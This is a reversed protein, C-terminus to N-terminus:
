SFSNIALDHIECIQSIRIRPDNLAITLLSSFQNVLRLVMSENYFDCHFSWTFLMSDQLEEINFVLPCDVRVRSFKNLNSTEISKSSMQSNIFNFFLFSKIVVDTKNLSDCNFVVKKTSNLFISYIYPLLEEFKWSPNISTLLYLTGILNGVLRRNKPSQRNSFLSRIICDVQGTLSFHLLILGALVISSISLRRSNRLELITAYLVSDCLLTIAKGRPNRILSIEKYRFRNIEGDLKKLVEPYHAFNAYLKSYNMKWNGKRLLIGWHKEINKVKELEINQRETYECLQPCYWTDDVPEVNKSYCKYFNNVDEKILNISWHDVIIHHFFLIFTVIPVDQPLVVVAQILPGANLSKLKRQIENTVKNISNIKETIVLSRYEIKFREKSYPHVTQYLTGNVMCFTTRLASHKCILKAYALELAEFNLKSGSFQLIILNPVDSQTRNFHNNWDEVQKPSCRYSETM